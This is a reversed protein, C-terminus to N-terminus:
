DSAGAAAGEAIFAANKGAQDELAKLVRDKPGFAGLRGQELVLLKSVLKLTSYRHTALMITVGEANSLTLLRDLLHREASMDLAATPEDLFLVKPRRILAQALAISHRQGGSLSRGREAIPMSLGLPHSRALEALGALDIARDVDDPSALPVGLTINEGLTGSILEPEQPVYGVFRRLETPPLQQVDVQDILIRGDTPQSLGSMLRGLTSKGSGIRGIIGLRDGPALSLNVQQLAAPGQADYRFTVNEVQVAPRKLTRSAKSRTWESPLKMVNAVAKYSHRAQQVRQLTGSVSALPALVRGALINAAILAGVSIQADLVLFVGWVIIIVSVIQSATQLVTTNLNAWFRAATASRSAEAVSHDFRRRLTSGGGLAKVADLSLLTEVLIGHRKSSDSQARKMAKSLPVQTFITFALVFAAAIAPVMALPGVIWYLVALFVFIFLADTIAVVASSTLLDRVNDFDRIHSALVGTAAPRADSKVELLHDFVRGSVAMDIRRGTEDVVQARVVKLLFDFFVALGVGAALAWLTPITLNPIVRDYVNMIFLPSALALLNVLLGAIVVQAYSAKFRGAASWFWHSRKEPASAVEETADRRALYILQRLSGQSLKRLGVVLETPGADTFSITRVRDAQLDYEAVVYADGNDTFGIFPPALPSALTLPSEVLRASLGLKAAAEDMRELRLHGGEMPMTDRFRDRVSATRLIRAITELAQALYRVNPASEPKSGSVKGSTSVTSLNDASLSSSVPVPETYDSTM